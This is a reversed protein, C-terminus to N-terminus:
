EEVEVTFYMDSATYARFSTGELVKVKKRSRLLADDDGYFNVKEEDFGVLRGNFAFTSIPQFQVLGGEGWLTAKKVILQVDARTGKKILIVEGNEDWIDANVECKPSIQKQSSIEELTKITVITGAPLKVKKKVKEAYVSVIFSLGFLLVFLKKM